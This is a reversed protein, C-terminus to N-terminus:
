MRFILKLDLCLIFSIFYNVLQTDVLYIENANFDAVDNSLRSSEKVFVDDDEDDEDSNKNKETSILKGM